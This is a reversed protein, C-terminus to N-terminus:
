PKRDFVFNGTPLGISTINNVRTPYPVSSTFASLPNKISSIHKPVSIEQKQPIIPASIQVRKSGSTRVSSSVNPYITLNPGNDIGCEINLNASPRNIKQFIYPLTEPSNINFKRNPVVNVSLVPKISNRSNVKCNEENLINSEYDSVMDSTFSNVKSANTDISKYIRPLRSLPLYQEPPIIPPRFEGDKMVSYPLYSQNSGLPNIEGYGQSMRNQGGNMGENGYSVSVMPNVGRQYNLINEQFRDTDNLWDIMMNDETAKQKYPVYIAKPPDRQINLTGFAGDTSPLTAHTTKPYQIM